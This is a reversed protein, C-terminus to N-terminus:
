SQQYRSTIRDVVDKHFKIKGEQLLKTMISDQFLIRQEELKKAKLNAIINDRQVAFDKMDAETKEILKAVVTQGGASIPGAIAGVPKTFVDGFFTAGISAAVSGNRNFPDSTKVELGLSKAVAEIDGGNAGLKDAAEKAKQQVVENTKQAILADRVQPEVEALPRQKPPNLQTVTALALRTQSLQIPDSVQNKASSAIAASLDKNVGVGPIAAGPLIDDARVFQLGLKAAIQEGNQPAKMLDARAQTALTQMKDTVQQGSLKLAILDKIKEYRALGAPEKDELKIIDFGFQTTVIDSIEGPKLKFAADAFPGLASLQDRQMWGLDGGKEASAQDQSNKKALEAFDAGSRAQKLIDEAKARIKKVEDPQKGVTDFLIRRVQVRDKVRFEEKHTDYYARIQAEPTQITAAVRDQDILIIQANRSEPITYTAKMRQYGSQMEAPTITVGSKLKDAPFLIYQLKIKENADRFAKEAEQPTVIVSAAAINQLYVEIANKRFNAVFEEPTYGMQQLMMAEQDPPVNALSPNTRIQRAVEAESVRFGMREAEYSVAQDAIMQQIVMPVYVALTSPPLQQNGFTERIHRYVMEETIKTGGVEAVVSETNPGGMSPGSPVLYLLMGLSVIALIVTLMIKKGREQSRFLNFM